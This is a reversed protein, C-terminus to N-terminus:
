FFKSLQGENNIGSGGHLGWLLSLLGLLTFGAATWAVATIGGVHWLTGGILVGIMRGVGSTAYFGSM